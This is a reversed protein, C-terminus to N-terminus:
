ADDHNKVIRLQVSDKKPKGVLYPPAKKTPALAEQFAQTKNAARRARSSGSVIREYEPSGFEVEIWELKPWRSNALLLMYQFHKVELSVGRPAPPVMFTWPGIPGVHTIETVYPFTQQAAKHAKKVQAYETGTVIIARYHPM